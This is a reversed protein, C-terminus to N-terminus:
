VGLHTMLDPLHIPDFNGVKQREFAELAVATMWFANSYEPYNNVINYITNHPGVDRSYDEQTYQHALVLTVQDKTIHFRQM